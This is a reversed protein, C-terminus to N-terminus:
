SSPRSTNLSHYVGCFSPSALGRLVIFFIGFLLIAEWCGGFGGFFGWVLLSFLAFWSIFGFLGFMWVVKGFFVGFFVFWGNYLKWGM